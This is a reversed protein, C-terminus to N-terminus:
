SRGPSSLERVRAIAQLHLRYQGQWYMWWPDLQTGTETQIQEALAEAGARDGSMLLANMLAVRGSQASPALSLAARYAKIADKHRNL